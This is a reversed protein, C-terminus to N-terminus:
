RKWWKRRDWGFLNYVVIKVTM